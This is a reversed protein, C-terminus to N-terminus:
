MKIDMLILDIDPNNRCIEVAEEGTKAYLIEEGIKKLIISLFEYVYEEDEAILIKLNKDQSESKDEIKTDNSESIEKKETNYPITFYFVSGKGEDSEVWIKGELLEVYAKSISLGLGSGEYVNKDEIDAQVFRDFIALQRDKPIGIGKDKVFFELYKGKKLYGFKVSGEHSYKIANKILNTLIVYLKERDSKIIAEKTPLSNILFLKMGKKEVEPKFFSFLNETEENINVDSISIKVQGSEIISIYVLDTITNLMRDSSKEIINIYEQKEEYSLDPEKLLNTFGVIGNMPTRIEHSINTLFASKLRDSETANILAAKLDQEAKKRDISISIQDSVFELMKLDSENYANEDTYSQVALVGTVKGKIKLPVGLWLKSLSGQHELKGEKVFRKKLDLNALLPKKTEIVYNTLTKGASASSFKDKEDAYFPFSLM